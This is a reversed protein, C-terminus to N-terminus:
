SKGGGKQIVKRVDKEYKPLVQDLANQLFPNSKTRGGDKTAHGHVLLHTLRHEPPKVHWIIRCSVQTSEETMTIARKYKERAGVPATAKTLRVLRRGATRAAATVGQQLDAGYQELERAIAESLDIGRIPKPKPM